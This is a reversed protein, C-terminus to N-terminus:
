FNFLVGFTKQRERSYIKQLTSNRNEAINLPISHKNNVLILGCNESLEQIYEKVFLFPHCM